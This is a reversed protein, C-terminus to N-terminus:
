ARVRRAPDKGENPAQRTDNARHLRAAQDLELTRAPLHLRIEVALLVGVV